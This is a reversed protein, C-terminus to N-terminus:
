WGMRVTQLGKALAMFYKDSEEKDKTRETSLQRKVISSGEQKICVCVCLCRGMDVCLCM